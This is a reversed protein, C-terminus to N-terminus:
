YSTIPQLVSFRFDIESDGVTCILWQADHDFFEKHLHHLSALTLFWSPDALAYDWWFLKNVGNLQFKQAEHFYAEIDNPDAHSHVVALQAIMTSKMWPERCFADVFQKYMAMMVLSTKGGVAALLMAEPTNTIYSALATFCYQSCGIPDSLM